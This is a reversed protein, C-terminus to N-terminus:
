VSGALSGTVFLVSVNMQLVEDTIESNTCAALDKALIETNNNGNNNCESYRDQANSLGAFM